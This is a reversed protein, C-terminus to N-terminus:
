VAEFRNVYLSDIYISNSGQRSFLFYANEEMLLSTKIDTLEIIIVKPRYAKFNWASLVDYDSGEIDISVLDPCYGIENLLDNIAIVGVEISYEIEAGLNNKGSESIASESLSCLGRNKTIFFQSKNKTKRGLIAKNIFIDRPRLKSVLYRVEPNADVLVGSAGRKYFYYTNSIEVPHCVGIELYRIDTSSVGIRAFAYALFIDDYFQGYSSIRPIDLLLWKDAPIGLEELYNKVDECKPTVVLCDYEINKLMEPELFNSFSEKKSYDKDSYGIVEFRKEIYDKSKIYNEGLGYVIVKKM